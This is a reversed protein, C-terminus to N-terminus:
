KDDPAVIASPLQGIRRGIEYGEKNVFFIVPIPRINIDELLNITPDNYLLLMDVNNVEFYQKAASMM